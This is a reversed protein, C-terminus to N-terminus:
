PQMMKVYTALLGEIEEKSPSRSELDTKQLSMLQVLEAAEKADTESFAQILRDLLNVLNEKTPEISLM